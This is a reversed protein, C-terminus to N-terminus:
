FQTGCKDFHCMLMELVYLFIDLSWTNSLGSHLALLVLSEELYNLKNM